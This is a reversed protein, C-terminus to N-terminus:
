LVARGMFLRIPQKNGKRSYSLFSSFADTVDRSFTRSDISYATAFACQSNHPLSIAHQICTYINCPQLLAYSRISDGQKTYNNEGKEEGKIEGETKKIFLHVSMLNNEVKREPIRESEYLYIRVRVRGFVCVCVCLYVRDRECVNAYRFVLKVSKILRLAM